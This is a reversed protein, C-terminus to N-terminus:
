IINLLQYKDLMWFVLIKRKPINVDNQQKYLGIMVNGLDLIGTDLETVASSIQSSVQTISTNRERASYLRM